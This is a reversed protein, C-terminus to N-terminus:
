TKKISLNPNHDEPNQCSTAYYSFHNGIKEIVPAEM